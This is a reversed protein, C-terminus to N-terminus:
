PTTPQAVVAPIGKERIKANLAALEAGLLEDIKAKHGAWQAQLDAFRKKAGETPAGEAGDVAGRLYIYHHNLRVPFNIVTQGDVTRKQILADEVGTLKEVLGKADAEIDKSRKMLDEIQGRVERLRIVSQHIETLEKDIASSLEEQAQFDQATADLRPDKELQFPQTAAKGGVTLRVQYAGPAAKRGALSGFSFIGPVRPIPEHRMDWTLRNMGAKVELPRPPPPGFFEEGASEPRGPEDKKQSSYRRVLKGSADLIEVTIPGEPSKAVYYDLIAGPPPNKGLRPNPGGFGGFAFARIANRPRFLHLEAVAVKEDIQRLPSLDDLIWFARGQTAAVLDGSQVKLDTIPTVPLNLQLSQWQRGGDFSVYMGTETGAYLLGQRVPDERVVRVWAEPGIGEVIRDWKKGYDTTKFIHPTFDNFKYKTVAIYATAADHPSVEVANVQAEGLGPPTVNQWTKGGDRTLHVLGDDTGAWFVGAQHPSEAVYYITGYVEGGAGENTIPSGQPGKKEDDNTTLDPSVEVWSRGRDESKLLVNGAHYLIQRNHSSVLIPANWNFRYKMEGMPLALPLEPYAQVNRASGLRDDYETIQGQYCGAYVLTPDDPDFAVHASECGGVARWDKWGIGPGFTRSMIGVTSNDQQGAYLWYPFRNDTNVRYFQATPQNQDTSWTRGGNYSIVAGGDNANILIQTNKPHIWLDHTDGHPVRVNTFTKGADISKMLPANCVWVVDPNQPDAFVEMYYWARGRINWQESQLSWSKGANDSRFLGGGPDAEVIAYVREGGPAVDVGIKGMLQPLGETLKQWTTGADTSKHIGSGPGGSRVEWPVRLHDWFAAYLIRPNTPDMALDAAGATEGVYLVNEWTKGGDNSRYVGRDRTPGYPAGQAAVYVLDPNTPHIRIRSIARTKELGLHKWTRGADTSKYVGDGHSTAVGRVAHEGMGVYIVNPDSPAVAIAGVSSTKLFGDTINNWTEGGDTTKFVGGGVGGFYFTATDQIVGTVAVSRGGRFPGINRWEMGQYLTPSVAEKKQTQASASGGLTGGVIM